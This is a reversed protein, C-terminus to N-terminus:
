LDIFYNYVRVIVLLFCFSEEVKDFTLTEEIFLPFSPPMMRTQKHISFLHVNVYLDGDGNGTFRTKATDVTHITFLVTYRYNENRIVCNPISDAISSCETRENKTKLLESDVMIESITTEMSNTNEDRNICQKKLTENETQLNCIQNQQEKCLNSLYEKEETLEKLAIEYQKSDSQDLQHDTVMEDFISLRYNRKGIPAPLPSELLMHPPLAEQLHIIHLGDGRNFKDIVKFYFCPLLLVEDESAFYSYPKINKGNFCEVAFLTYSDARGLYQEGALMSLSATCSSFAWWTYFEGVKYNESLDEKVGRWVTREVSPLKFLGSLLLKLYLFWPKLGDRSELRLTKNLISYLSPHVPDWEMTYLIIAASEDQTLTETTNQSRNKATWVRADIDHILKTLPKVAEELSVCLKDAYGRLPALTNLCEENANLFRTNIHIASSSEVSM